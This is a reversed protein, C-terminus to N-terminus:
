HLHYGYDGDKEYNDGCHHEGEISKWVELYLVIVLWLGVLWLWVLWLWVLLLWM